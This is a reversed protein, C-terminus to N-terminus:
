NTGDLTGTFTPPSVILFLWLVLVVLFVYFIQRIMNKRNHGFFVSCCIRDENNYPM